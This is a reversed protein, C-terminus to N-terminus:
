AARVQADDPAEQKELSGFRVHRVEDPWLLSQLVLLEGASVCRAWGLRTRLTFHVVATRDTRALTEALLAYARPTAAAPELYYSRHLLIPDIQETPVFQLVAIESEEAAPCHGALDDDTLIM